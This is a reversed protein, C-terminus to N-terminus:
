GPARRGGRLGNPGRSWTWPTTGTVRTLGSRQLIPRSMDTSDSHIWRRGAALASRARAATIARYIGRGRWQPVMGGGWIGAFDSDPVLELRGAGVVEGDAEALWVELLPDARALRRTLDERGESGSSDGFALDLARAVGRLDEEDVARRVTVGPPLEVDVVLAEAPGIMVSEEEGEVFGASALASRLGPAHDHSRTKWEIDTVGGLDRFRELVTGVLAPLGGPAVGSLDGYSVFGSGGPFVALWLPGIRQVSDAGVMEASTRLQADYLALLTGADPSVADRGIM